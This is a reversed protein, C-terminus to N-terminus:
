ANKVEYKNFLVLAPYLILGGLFLGGVVGSFWHAGLYLRSLAVAAIIVILLARWIAAIAPSKVLRPALYFLFGGAAAAMAVHGSPFGSGQTGVMVQVLEADPRPRNVIMKLLWAIIGAAGTTIAIAILRRWWLRFLLVVVVAAGVICPAYQMLPKFWSSDIAQLWQSIAVDGPFYDYRNAFYCLVGFLAILFAYVAAARRSM